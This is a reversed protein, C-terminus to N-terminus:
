VQLLILNVEETRNLSLGLTRANSSGQCGTEEEVFFAVKLIDYKKLCKLAIWIGNKDDAGLGETRRHKKSYGFILGEAEIARFDISHNDQVQDLHAVIVPYTESIGRTIYLNGKFDKIISCDPITRKVYNIIFKIMKAEKGSKSHISYLQKLLKFSNNFFTNAWKSNQINTHRVGEM